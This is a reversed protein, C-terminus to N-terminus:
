AGPTASILTVATQTIKLTASVTNNSYSSEQLVDGPDAAVTLVYKGNPLGTIDIWQLNTTYKYGDGWGVSLGMDATLANPRFPDCGSGLYQATQPAGPLTLKYQVNDSFCFGHKALSGVGVGNDLRTLTGSEIDKTHWHNHGDGAYYMTTNVPVDTSGAQDDYIRQVVSMEATSTDPRTGILELPGTGVNVLVATYRLLRHGPITTTDLTVKSLKKMGLDPLLQTASAM